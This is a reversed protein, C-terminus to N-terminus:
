QACRALIAPEQVDKQRVAGSVNGDDAISSFRMILAHDDPEAPVSLSSKGLASWLTEIPYAV